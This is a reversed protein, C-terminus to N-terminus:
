AVYLLVRGIDASTSSWGSFSEGAGPGERSGTGRLWCDNALLRRVDAGDVVAVSVAREGAGGLTSRLEFADFYDDM